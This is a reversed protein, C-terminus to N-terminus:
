TNDPEKVEREAIKRLSTKSHVAKFPGEQWAKEALAKATSDQPASADWEPRENLDNLNSRPVAEELRESPSDNTEQNLEQLLSDKFAEQERQLRRARDTVAQLCERFELDHIYEDYDLDEVFNILQGFDSAEKEEKEGETMAWAPKSAGKAKPNLVSTLDEAAGASLKILRIADRQKRFVEKQIRQRRDREIEEHEVVQAEEAVQQQLEKIWRCHRRLAASPGRKKVEHTAHPRKRILGLADGVTAPIASRFPKTPEVKLADMATPRNCLMVGKYNGLEAMPPPSFSSDDKSDGMNM